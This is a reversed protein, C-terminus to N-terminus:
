RSRSDSSKEAPLNKSLSMFFWSSRRAWVGNPAKRLGHMIVSMAEPDRPADELKALRDFLDDILQREQPTM